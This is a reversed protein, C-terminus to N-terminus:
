EATMAQHFAEAILQVGRVREPHCFDVFLEDGPVGDPAAAAFAGQVDVCHVEPSAACRELLLEGLQRTARRGLWDHDVARQLAIRAQEAQGAALLAEGELWLAEAHDPALELAERARTLAQEHHGHQLESRAGQLLGALRQRQAPDLGPPPEGHEPPARLNVAPIALWVPVGAHHAQSLVADLNRAWAGLLRQYAPDNRPGAAHPAATIEARQAELARDICAQQADVMAPTDPPAWGSLRRWRDRAWRLTVLRNGLRALGQRYPDTCERLLQGQLENNGAYVLLADAGLEIAEAAMRSFSSSDMGAVGANIVRVPRGRWGAEAFLGELREPFGREEIEYPIGQTTSGGLAFVLAQDPPDIPFDQEHFGRPVLAPNSRAWPRGDTSRGREFWDGLVRDRQAVYYRHAFGQTAQLEAISSGQWGSARLGLEAGLLLLTVPLLSFLLRRPWRLGPRTSPM